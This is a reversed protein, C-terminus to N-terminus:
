ALWSQWMIFANVIREVVLPLSIDMKAEYAMALREAKRLLKVSHAIKKQLSTKFRALVDEYKFDLTANTM